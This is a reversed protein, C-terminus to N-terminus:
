WGALEFNEDELIEKKSKRSAVPYDRFIKGKKPYVIKKKEKEQKDGLILQKVEVDATRNVIEKRIKM